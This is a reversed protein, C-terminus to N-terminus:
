RKVKDKLDDITEDIKDIVPDVKDKHRRYVLVGAVVAVVLVVLFWFATWM